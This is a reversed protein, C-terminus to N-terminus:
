QQGYLYINSSKIRERRYTQLVHFHGESYRKKTLSHPMTWDHFPDSRARRGRNVKEWIVLSLFLNIKRTAPPPEAHFADFRWHSRTVIFPRFWQNDHIFGEKSLRRYVDMRCVPHLIEALMSDMWTRSIERERKRERERESERARERAKNTRQM